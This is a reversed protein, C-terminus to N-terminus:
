LELGYTVVLQGEPDRREALRQWGLRRYFGGDGFTVLLSQHAGAARAADVFAHVLQAGAGTGRQEPAVVVHLLVASVGSSSPLDPQSRPRNQGLAARAYRKSRTRLFPVALHPHRLLGGLAGVILPRAHQRLAARNHGPRTSGVVFGVLRGDDAEAVLAVAGDIDLFTALYRRIFRPGLRTLFGDRLERVHLDACVVLDIQAMPRVVWPRDAPVPM